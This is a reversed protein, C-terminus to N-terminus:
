PPCSAANLMCDRVAPDVWFIFFLIAGLTILLFIALSFGPPPKLQGKKNMEVVEGKEKGM